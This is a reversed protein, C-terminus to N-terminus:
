AGAGVYIKKMEDEDPTEINAIDEPSDRFTVKRFIAMRRSVIHLNRHHQQQQQQQQKQQQHKDFSKGYDAATIMPRERNLRKRFIDGSDM